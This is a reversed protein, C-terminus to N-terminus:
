TRRGPDQDALRTDAHPDEHPDLALLRNLCPDAHAAEPPLVVPLDLKLKNM